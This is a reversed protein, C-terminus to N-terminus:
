KKRRTTPEPASPLEYAAHRLLDTEVPITLRIGRRTFGEFSSDQIYERIDLVQGKDTALIRIRYKGIPNLERVVSDQKAM